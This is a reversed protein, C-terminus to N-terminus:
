ESTEPATSSSQNPTPLGQPQGPPLSNLGLLRLLNPDQGAEAPPGQEKQYDLAKQYLKAAAQASTARDKSWAAAQPSLTPLAALTAWKEADAQAGALKEEVTPPQPKPQPSKM